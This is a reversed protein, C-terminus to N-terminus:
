DEVRIRSLSFDGGHNALVFGQFPERFSTDRAQIVLRGDVSIRMDGNQNRTWVLTHFSGDELNLSDHSSAIVESSNSTLRMLSLGPNSDPHYVLRYGGGPRNGQFVGMELSGEQQRSALALEMEFANRIPSSVFIRATQTANPAAEPQVNGMQELVLQLMALGIEEPKESRLGRSTSANEDPVEVVTRLGDRDVSFRGSLVTWAPNQRFDGDSFDDQIAIQPSDTPQPQAPAAVEQEQRETQRLRKLLDSTAHGNVALGADTQYQRIASRTRSGMLGDAPGADYDLRNLERQIEAVGQRDSLTEIAPRSATTAQTSAPTSQSSSTTEPRWSRAARQAEAIQQTTMQEAIANRADAAHRHSRSAALNYWKHAEVFNQPTGNGAEHMRGLMYQADADESRALERFEQIAERYQQREYDRMAGAYDANALAIHGTLLLLFVFGKIIMM